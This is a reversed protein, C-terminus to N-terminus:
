RPNFELDYKRAVKMIRANLYRNYYTIYKSEDHVKQMAMCVYQTKSCDFEFGLFEVRVNEMGRTYIDDPILCGIACKTGNPGRYLCHGDDNVSACGQKYLHDVITDFTKQTDSIIM